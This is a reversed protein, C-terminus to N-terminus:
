SRTKQKELFFVSREILIQPRPAALVAAPAAKRFASPRELPTVGAALPSAKM